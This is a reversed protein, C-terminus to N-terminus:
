TPGDLPPDDVLTQLSKGTEVYYIFKNKVIQLNLLIELFDKICKQPKKAM